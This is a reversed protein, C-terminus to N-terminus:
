TQWEEKSQKRPRYPQLSAVDLAALDAVLLDVEIGFVRWAKGQQICRLGRREIEKRVEERKLEQTTKM